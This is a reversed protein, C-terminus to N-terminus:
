SKKNLSTKVLPWILSFSFGTIAWLILQLTSADMGSGQLKMAMAPLGSYWIYWGGNMLNDFTISFTVYEAQSPMSLASQLATVGIVGVIGAGFWTGVSEVVSELNWRDNKLEEPEVSSLSSDTIDRSTLPSESSNNVNALRTGCRACFKSDEQSQSGCETCFVSM